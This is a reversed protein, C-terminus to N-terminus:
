REERSILDLRDDPRECRGAKAVPKVVDATFPVKGDLFAEGVAYGDVPVGRREFYRIKEENFGGSVLIKVHHFGFDDLTSRVNQVLLPNVGTPKEEGMQDSTISADVMTESTDLRVGWLDHGFELACALAETACSNNFDVLSILNVEPFEQAFARSAAVVDGNFCAILAHPMTGISEEGWWAVMADSAFGKAGGIYAAYGDSGQTAYHDFRDAFFLLPKDNVAEALRRANTAVRTGRAVVGLLVSELHGFFEYPGKIQVVPERPEISDGDYLAKVELDDWRNVWADDLEAAMEAQTALTQVATHPDVIRFRRAENRVEMYRRFRQQDREPNKWHGSCLRLIAIMEDVGCLVSHRKQFFQMTVQTEDCYIDVIQRARNFYTASRYGARLEPVPMSFEHSPLRQKM